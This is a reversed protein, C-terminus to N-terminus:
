SEGKKAARKKVTKTPQAKAPTKATGAVAKYDESKLLAYFTTRNMGVAQAVASKSVGATLWQHIGQLREVGSEPIPPMDDPSVKAKVVMEGWAIQSVDVGLVQAIKVSADARPIHGRYLYTDFTWGLGTLERMQSVSFGRLERWENLTKVEAM